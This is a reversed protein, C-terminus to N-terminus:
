HFFSFMKALLQFLFISFFSPWFACLLIKISRLEKITFSFANPQFGFFFLLFLAHDNAQAFCLAACFLIKISRLEKITFFFVNQSFASSSFFFFFPYDFIRHYDTSDTLLCFPLAMEMRTHWLYILTIPPEFVDKRRVPM